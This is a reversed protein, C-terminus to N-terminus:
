SAPPTKFSSLVSQLQVGAEQRPSSPLLTCCPSARRRCEARLREMGSDAEPMQQRRQCSVCRAPCASQVNQPTAAPKNKREKKKGRKSTPWRRDSHIHTAWCRASTLFYNTSLSSFLSPDPREPSFTEAQPKFTMVSIVNIESRLPPLSRLISRISVWTPTQISQSTDNRNYKCQM